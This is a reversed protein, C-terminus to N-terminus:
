QDCSEKFHSVYCKIEKLTNSKIIFLQLFSTFAFFLPMNSINKNYFLVISSFTSNVKFEACMTGYLVTLLREM